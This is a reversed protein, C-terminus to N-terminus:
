INTHGGYATRESMVYDSPDQRFRRHKISHKRSEVLFLVGGIYAAVTGIVAIWYSYGMNNHEWNPMWYRADGYAGFIIVAVSGSLAATFMSGGLTALLCVFNEADRSTCLYVLTLLGAILTLIFTITFFFQVAIFFGPLLFEHIIYYEEEYVWWCGAFHTDYWHRQDEFDKFCVIWLGISEFKPKELEGDTVLWSSTVFALLIFLIAVAAFGLATLGLRTKIM